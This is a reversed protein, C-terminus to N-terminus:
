FIKDLVNAMTKRSSSTGDSSPEDNQTRARKNGADERQSGPRKGEADRVVVERQWVNRSFDKESAVAKDGKKRKEERASKLRSIMKARDVNQLYADVEKRSQSIENELRQERSARENALQETLHRWKFKPLYKLNWIDDHYFGHKKGGMQTNNLMSAVARAYKKNKFEIWGEVYNKRRNGGSKVRLTRRKNDEQVLYIRGIQAYKELMHRVKAPKMFPPIRSMYVVGSKREVNQARLIDDESLKSKKHKKTPASEGQENDSGDLDGVFNDENDSNETVEKASAYNSDGTEKGNDESNEPKDDASAYNSDGIEKAEDEGEDDDEDSDDDSNYVARARIAGSRGAEEEESEEESSQEADSDQAFSMAKAMDFRSDTTSSAKLKGEAAAM